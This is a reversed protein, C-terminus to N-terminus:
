AARQQPFQPRVDLGRRRLEVEVRYIEAMPFDLQGRQEPPRVDLRRCADTLVQLYATRVARMKLGKGTAGPRNERAELQARLRRLDAGVREIPVLSPRVTRRQEAIQECESRVWRSLRPLVVPLALMAILVM